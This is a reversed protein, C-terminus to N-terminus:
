AAEETTAPILPLQSLRDAILGAYEASKEIAISSRGLRRAAENTTGSGAFPDIVTQGPWSALSVMWEAVELPMPAPHPNGKAGGVYAVHFSRGRAGLENVPRGAQDARDDGKTGQGRRWVRNLREVSEKEYETRVADTNLPAGPDGLIFVLEHSDAFVNGRIPNANPKLWVRTDLHSWGVLEAARLLAEQWRLECGDRFLRGANLLMPGGDRVVRRLELFILQFEALSPSEYEPRADLYPPSTVVCDVSNDRLDRMVRRADGVYLTFDSDAVFPTVRRVTGADVM